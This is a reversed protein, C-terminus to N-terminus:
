RSQQKDLFAGISQAAVPRSYLYGQGAVGGQHRIWDAQDEAEIGEAVTPLGLAACLGLMSRVIKESEADHGLGTVFSRDIKVRDFPFDRLHRLSSYGTGFDDLAIRVGIDRLRSINAHAMEIDEVLATETVEIELRAPPLGTEDLIAITKDSLALNRLQSPAVNVAIPVESPWTMADRCAATLVIMYLDDVLGADEAVSIFQRAELLGLRPNQWRALVEVASVTEDALDVIPQYFPVVEGRVLGKRLEEELTLRERIRVDLVADFYACRNRGASKAQYMAIDARQVLTQWDSADQPYMAVGLSVTTDIARGGAAVPRAVAALIRQALGAVLEDDVDEDMIIAFEDGGLRAVFDYPRLAGTLREALAQLLQDGVAHGLNDNVQKFRDLDLFILAMVHGRRRARLMRRECEEEFLRRNALGTLPDHRAMMAAKSEALRRRQVERRLTGARIILQFALAFSAVMLATFFEDLQWNEHARSFQYLREFSDISLLLM